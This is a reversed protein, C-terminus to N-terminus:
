AIRMTQAELVSVRAEIKAAWRLAAWGQALVGSSMLLQVIDLATM